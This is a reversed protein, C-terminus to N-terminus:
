NSDAIYQEPAHRQNEIASLSRSGTKALSCRMPRWRQALIMLMLVGLADNDFCEGQCKEVTAIEEERFAPCIVRM